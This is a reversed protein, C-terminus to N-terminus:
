NRVSPTPGQIALIMYDWVANKNRYKQNHAYGQVASNDRLWAFSTRYWERETRWFRAHNGSLIEAIASLTQKVSRLIVQVLACRHPGDLNYCSKPHRHLTIEMINISVPLAVTVTPLVRRQTPDQVTYFLFSAPHWCESCREESHVWHPWSSRDRQVSCFYAREEM